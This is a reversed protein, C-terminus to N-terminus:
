RESENDAYVPVLAGGAQPYMPATAVTNGLQQVSVSNSGGCVVRTLVNILGELESSQTSSM